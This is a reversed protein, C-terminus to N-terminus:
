QARYEAAHRYAASRCFKVITGYRTSGVSLVATKGDEYEVEVYYRM